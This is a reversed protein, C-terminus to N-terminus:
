KFKLDNALKSNSFISFAPCVERLREIEAHVRCIANDKEENSSKLDNVILKLRNVESATLFFCSFSPGDKTCIVSVRVTM